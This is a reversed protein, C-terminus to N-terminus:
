HTAGECPTIYLFSTTGTSFTSFWANPPGVVMLPVQGPQVPFGNAPVGAAPQAATVGSTQGMAVFMTVAGVVQLLFTTPNQGGTIQVSATAGVASAIATTNGQPQFAGNQSM